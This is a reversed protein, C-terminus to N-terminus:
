GTAWRALRIASPRKHLWRLEYNRSVVAAGSVLDQFLDELIVDLLREAAFAQELRADTIPEPDRIRPFQLIKHRPGRGKVRALSRHPRLREPIQYDRALVVAGNKIDQQLDHLLAHLVEEAAYAQALREDTIPRPDRAPLVPAPLM